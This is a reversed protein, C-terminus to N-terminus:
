AEGGEPYAEAHLIAWEKVADMHGPVDKWLPHTPDNQIVKIKAKATMAGPTENSGLNAIDDESFHSTLKALFKVIVPNSGLNGLADIVEKGGLKAVVSQVNAINKGYNEKWESRLATEGDKMAKDVAADADVVAKSANEFYWKHLFAAQAQTLNAQHAMQRFVGEVEPTMQAKIKEHLTEIPVFTYAEPKAPKGLAQYYKEKEEAPADDKPIIVGKSGVLKVVNEHGKILEGVTKYKGVNPNDKFTEPIPTEEFVPPAETDPTEPPLTDVVEDPM